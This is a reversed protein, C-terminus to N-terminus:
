PDNEVSATRKAHRNMDAESRSRDFHQNDQLSAIPWLVFGSARYLAASGFRSLRYRLPSDQRSILPECREGLVPADGDGVLGDAGNRRRAISSVLIGVTM